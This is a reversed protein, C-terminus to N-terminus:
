NWKDSFDSLIDTKCKNLLVQDEDSLNDIEHKHIANNITIFLIENFWRSKSKRFEGLVPNIVLNKWDSYHDKGCTQEDFYLIIGDSFNKNICANELRKLSAQIRKSRLDDDFEKKSKAIDHKVIYDMISSSKNWNYSDTPNSEIMKRITEVFESKEKINELDTDLIIHTWDDYGNELSLNLYQFSKDIDNQRCYSCALNYYALKNNHNTDICKQFYNIANDYDNDNLCKLGLDLNETFNERSTKPFSNSQEYIEQKMEDVKKQEQMCVLCKEIWVKPLEIDCFTIGSVRDYKKPPLENIQIMRTRMIVNFSIDLNYPEGVLIHEYISRGRLDCDYAEYYCKQAKIMTIPIPTTM